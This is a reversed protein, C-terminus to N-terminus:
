VTARGGPASALAGVYEAGAARDQALLRRFRTDDRGTLAGEASALGAEPTTFYQPRHLGAGSEALQRDAHGAFREVWEPLPVPADDPLDGTASRCYLEILEATRFPHYADGMPEEDFLDLLAGLVGLLREPEAAGVAASPDALRALERHLAEGGAHAAVTADWEAFVGSGAVSAFRAVAARARQIRASQDKPHARRRLFGM